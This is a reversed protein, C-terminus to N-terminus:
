FRLATARLVASSPWTGKGTELGIATRAVTEKEATPPLYVRGRDGEAVIAMLRAGM